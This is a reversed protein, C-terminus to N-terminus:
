CRDSGRPGPRRDQQGRRRLGRSGRLAPARRRELRPGEGLNRSVENTVQRVKSPGNEAADAGGSALTPANKLMKRARCPILDANKQVAIKQM